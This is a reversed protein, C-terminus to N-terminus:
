SKVLVVEVGLATLQQHSSEPIRDDTILIDISSAAVIMHLGSKNFKTSDTVAIKQQSVDCMKRNLRAEAEHYTTIGATISFGDVGLFLQDFRYNDLSQEAQNGYFSLSSRRLHGGTMLLEVGSADRLADAVNLGNTMVTLPQMESLLCAIEYTTSGSDLIIASGPAIYSLAKEAIRQKVPHNERNKHQIHLEPTVVPTELLLAGGYTRTALGIKEMFALDNRITVTSVQFLASLDSVQVAGQNKLLSIIKERRESTTKVAVKEHM